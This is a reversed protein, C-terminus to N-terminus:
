EGHLIEWARLLQADAEIKSDFLRYMASFMEDLLDPDLKNEFALHHDAAFTRIAELTSDDYYGDERKVDYGLYKLIVQAALIPDSVEDPYYADVGDPYELVALSIYLADDLFVEEDPVVGKGHISDGSPTLWQAETYKLISGDAFTRSLQVTGKGYTTTGILKTGNHERMAAAFVETCSASYDNILCVIDDFAYKGGSTKVVSESGDKFTERLVVQDKDIFFSAVSRLTDLYGGGNDRLDIILKTAGQRRLSDLHSKLERGTGNSFSILRVLGINDGLMRSNVSTYIQGRVVTIDQAQGERVVTLVVKTGEEGTVMDAIQDTDLGELSKGYVHTIIDGAKIGYSEAPSGSLVDRVHVRNNFYQYQIGVGVISNNLSNIFEQAEKADMYETFPDSEFSTMGTIAKNILEEDLNEVDKGWYWNDKMTKYITDFVASHSTGSNGSEGPTVATILKDTLIGLVFAVVLGCAIIIRRLHQSTVPKTKTSM